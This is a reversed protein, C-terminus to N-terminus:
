ITGKSAARIYHRIVGDRQLEEIDRHGLGNMAQRVGNFFMELVPEGPGKYSVDKEIGEPFRNEQPNRALNYRHSGAREQIANFSGMGRIRKFMGREEDYRRQAASEELGGLATGMMPVNAGLMLAGIVHAPSKIGGDAILGIHGYKSQYSKLAESTDRIASGLARGFGLSETTSCVEGTGIGVRFADVCSGVEEMVRKIVEAEVVNGLIVDLEPANKKAFKAIELHDKYINRADVVIGSVGVDRAAMIRDKAADLFSEVAVLVKLQKNEDKTALPYKKDKALDSDTVLAVIKNDQDVIPLTDLKHQRLIKNAARINKKDYTDERRATILRELPTMVETILVKPNELYRLDRSTVMGIMPTEKTGDQTIPYSFFGNIEAQKFVTGVTADPGLLIPNKVFGAEFERTKKADDMQDYITPYNYHLVGIGGVLALLTAMNSGTVTDMPSSMLLLKLTLRKTLQTTLDVERWSFDPIKCPPFIIDDLTFENEQLWKDIERAM